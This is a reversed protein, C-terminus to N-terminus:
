ATWYGDGQEKEIMHDIITRDIHRCAQLALEGSNMRQDTSVRDIRSAYEANPARGKQSEMVGTM